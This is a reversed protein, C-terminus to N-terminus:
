ARPPLLNNGRDGSFLIDGIGRRAIKEQSAHASIQVFIGDTREHFIRRHYPLLCRTTQM